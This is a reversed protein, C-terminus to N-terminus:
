KIVNLGIPGKGTSMDYASHLLTALVTQCIKLLLKKGPSNPVIM